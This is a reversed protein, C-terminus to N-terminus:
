EKPPSYKIHERVVQLGRRKDLVKLQEMLKGYVDTSMHQDITGETHYYYVRVRHDRSMRRIRRHLQEEAEPPWMRDMQHMEDAADLNISIGGARASLLLVRTPNNIPHYPQQWLEQIADKGGQSTKGTLMMVPLADQRLRKYIIDLYEVWQSAVVVKMDGEGALIGREELNYMLVDLKNSVGTFHVKGDEDLCLEGNAMQRTRTILDLTGVTSLIGGDVKVEADEAMKEYQRAQKGDMECLLDWWEPKMRGPKVEDMTRRLLRPGLDDYFAKEREPRLGGIFKAYQDPTGLMPNGRRVMKQEVDFNSEAWRWFSRYEDPWCWHLAGFMGEVRGGRGWPTGTVSLKLGREYEVPIRRLGEGALNGKTTTMSGLMTHSEDVVVAAWPYPQGDLEFLQPYEYGDFIYPKSPKDRHGKIRIMEGVTVLVKADSPDAFFRALARERTARTGRALYVPVDPALRRWENAWTTKVAMKPCLILTHGLGREILGAMVGRTKGIGPEDVFLGGNRYASAIWKAAVRQWDGLSAYLTPYQSPVAALTADTARSLEVQGRAEATQDRYWESLDARVKVLSGWQRRAERCVEVSLPYSFMQQLPMWRGGPVQRALETAEGYDRAGGTKVFDVWIRTSSGRMMKAATVAM